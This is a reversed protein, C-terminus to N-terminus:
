TENQCVAAAAAADQAAPAEVLPHEADVVSLPAGVTTQVDIVVAPTLGVQPPPTAVGIGPGV